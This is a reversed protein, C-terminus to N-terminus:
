PHALRVIRELAFGVRHRISHRIPDISAEPRAATPVIIGTGVAREAM